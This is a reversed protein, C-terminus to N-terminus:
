EERESSYCQNNYTHRKLKPKRTQEYITFNPRSNERKKDDAEWKQSTRFLGHNGTISNQLEKSEKQVFKRGHKQRIIKNLSLGVNKVNSGNFDALFADM